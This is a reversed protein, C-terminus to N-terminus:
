LFTFMSSLFTFVGSLSQIAHELPRWLNSSTGVNETFARKVVLISLLATVTALILPAPGIFGQYNAVANALAGSGALNSVHDDRLLQFSLEPDLAGVVM